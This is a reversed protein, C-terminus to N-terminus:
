MFSYNKQFRVCSCHRGIEFVLMDTHEKNFLVYM